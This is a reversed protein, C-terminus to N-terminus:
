QNIVARLTDANYKSGSPDNVLVANRMLVKRPSDFSSWNYYGFKLYDTYSTKWGFAGQHNVVQQGDIWAQVLGSSDTAQRFKFVFDVWRGFAIPRQAYNITGSVGTGRVRIVMDRGANIAYVGFSPSYGASSDGSHLQTGFISAESTSLTGWDYVFVKYAAWYTKGFEINNPMKFEARKSGSTNPDSPALQFVIAKRASNAPDAQKGLRVTEGNPLTSGQIGAEPISNVSPYQGMVQANYGSQNAFASDALMANMVDGADISGTDTPTPTPTTTTGTNGNKLVVDRQVTSVGGKSDTAKVVLPYTGDKYTSSEFSCQYPSTSDTKLLTTGLFFEVKSVGDADTATAACKSSDVYGTWTAGATPATISVAPPTNTTSTTGNSIKVSRNATAKMNSGDYAVARLTYSGNPFQKTDFDCNWGSATDTDVLKATGSSNVVYFEVKKIRLGNVVCNSNAVTGSLTAGSSPKSWSVTPAAYSATAAFAGAVALACASLTTRQM